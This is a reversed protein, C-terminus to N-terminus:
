LRSNRSRMTARIRPSPQGSKPTAVRNASRWGLAGILGLLLIIRPSDLLSDFCGVALFGVMAAVFAATTGPSASSQLVVAIAAVGLALWALIGLAGQEFAVQLPTDLVRWALHVDSTVFWRDLGHRFSGNGLLEDQGDVLSLGTVEM